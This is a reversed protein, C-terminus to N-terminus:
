ETRWRNKYLVHEADYWYRIAPPRELKWCGDNSKMSCQMVAINFAMEKHDKRERFYRFSETLIIPIVLCFIIIFSTALTKVIRISFGRKNEVAPAMGNSIDYITFILALITCLFTFTGLVLLSISLISM